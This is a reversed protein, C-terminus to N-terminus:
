DGKAASRRRIRELAREVTKSEAGQVAGLLMLGPGDAFEARFEARDYPALSWNAIGSHVSRTLHWALRDISIDPRLREGARLERLMNRILGYGTNHFAEGIRSQPLSMNKVANVTFQPHDPGSEWFAEMVTLVPSGGAARSSAAMALWQVWEASADNMVRGRDGVVNYITPVSIECLDAIARFCVGDLGQDALLRRAAAFIDSRREQHSNWRKGGPQARM